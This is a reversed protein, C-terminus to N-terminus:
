DRFTFFGDALFIVGNVIALAGKTLAINRTDTKILRDNWYDIILWGSAIFLLAGIISLFIDLRKNLPTSM